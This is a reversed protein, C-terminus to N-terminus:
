AAGFVRLLGPDEVLAQNVLHEGLVDPQVGELWATGPYLRHLLEALDDLVALPQDSLLPCHRLLDVAQAPTQVRGALTAVAAAQMIPRGALVGQGIARVGEDWFAQERRLAADLLTQESHGAVGDVAASLAALHLFLVREFHVGTFLGAPPDHRTDLVASFRDFARRVVDPRDTPETALPALRYTTTAPGNLLDGVSGMTRKLKPWWDAAARALLVCRLRGSQLDAAAALLDLTEQEKTEAYDIVVLTSQRSSALDSAWSPPLASPQADLFGAQWEDDAVRRCLEIMLRTKGMGGAGTYLRVGVRGAGNCWAVLDRLEQHRGEFDVVQYAARLLASPAYTDISWRRGPLSLVPRPVRGVSSAAVEKLRRLVAQQYARDLEPLLKQDSLLVRYAEGVARRCVQEEAQSLDCLQVASLKLVVATVRAPDMDLEVIRQASLGHAALAAAAASMGASFYPATIVESAAWERLGNTVQDLAAQHASKAPGSLWEAVRDIVAEGAIQAARAPGTLATTLVIRAVLVVLDKRSDLM